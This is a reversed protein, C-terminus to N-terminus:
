EYRILWYDNIPKTKHFKNLENNNKSSAIHIKELQKISIYKQSILQLIIDISEVLSLVEFLSFLTSSASFHTWHIILNIMM